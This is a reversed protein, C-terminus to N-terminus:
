FSTIVIKKLPEISKQGVSCTKKNIPMVDIRM